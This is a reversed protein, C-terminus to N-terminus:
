PATSYTVTLKPRLTPDTAYERTAFLKGNGINGSVGRLRWGFNPQGAAFASVGSTVDFNVWGASWPASTQADPTSRYDVDITNAGPSAWPVGPLRQQWTASGESWDELVRHLNFVTDYATTKYLSLTAAQIVAGDPVPGGESAFIAFRYLDTYYDRQSLLTAQAGFNLTTHYSSLYTDRTSTYGAMGDQLVVTGTPGSQITVTVQGSLTQAGANDTALATLRAQGAPPNSWQFSFPTALSEGLKTTGNFFEVKAVSGDFDNASTAISIAQGYPIVQGDSPATISVTPALNTNGGPNRWGIPKYLWINGAVDDQLGMFADLNDVYKWKGIIGTGLDGNPTAGVPSPQKLITWGSPTVPATTPPTLMWVRGDGCWLVFQDRVPDFDLGCMRLRLNGSAILTPFEGTPDTPTVEHDNNTPGAFNLDWYAFTGHPVTRVFLKRVPDYGCAPQDNAVSWYRGVKTWSDTSPANVDTMSFRYLALATSGSNAGVYAVDHGNEQTYGTCGAIHTAPLVATSPLNLWADRNQWMNGGVVEPHPGVRM